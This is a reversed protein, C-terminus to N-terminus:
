FVNVDAPARKVIIFLQRIGSLNFHENKNQLVNGIYTFLGNTKLFIFSMECETM